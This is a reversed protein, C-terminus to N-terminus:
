LRADALHAALASRFQAEYGGVPFGLEVEVMIERGSLRVERLAGAEKLTQRLYPEPFQELASRFQQVTEAM